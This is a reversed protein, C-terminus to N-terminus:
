QLSKAQCLCFGLCKPPPQSPEVLISTYECRSVQADLRYFDFRAIPSPGKGCIVPRAQKNQCLHHGLVSILVNGHLKTSQSCSTVAFFIPVVRCYPCLHPLEDLPERCRSTSQQLCQVFKVNVATLSSCYGRISKIRIGRIQIAM